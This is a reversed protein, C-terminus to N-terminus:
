RVWPYSRVKVENLQYMGWWFKSPLLGSPQGGDQDRSEFGM